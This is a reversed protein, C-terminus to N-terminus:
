KLTLKFVYNDIYTNFHENNTVSIANRKSIRIFNDPNFMGIDKGVFVVEKTVYGNAKDLSVINTVSNIQDSVSKSIQNNSESKNDIHNNYILYTNKDDGMIGYSREYNNSSVEKKKNKKYWNITKNANVSFVLLDEYGFKNYSRYTASMNDANMVATQFMVDYKKEAVFIINETYYMVDSIKYYKSYKNNIDQKMKESFNVSLHEALVDKGEDIYFMSVGIATSNKYNFGSFLLKDKMENYIVSLELVPLSNSPIDYMKVDKDDVTYSIVKHDYNLTKEAKDKSSNYKKAIIYIVGKNDVYIQGKSNAYVHGQSSVYAIASYINYDFDLIDSGTNVQELDKNIVTYNFKLKDGILNPSYFCIAIFKHNNKILFEKNISKYKNSYPITSVIKPTGIVKLTSKSIIEM